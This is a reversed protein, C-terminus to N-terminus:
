GDASCRGPGGSLEVAAGISATVVTTGQSAAAKRHLDNFYLFNKMGNKQADIDSLGAIRVLRRRGVSNDVFNEVEAPSPGFVGRPVRERSPM